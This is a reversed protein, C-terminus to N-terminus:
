SKGEQNVKLSFHFCFFSCVSVSACLSCPSCATGVGVCQCICIRYLLLTRVWEFSQHSSFIMCQTSRNQKSGRAFSVCTALTKPMSDLFAWKWTPCKYYLCRICISTCLYPSLLLVLFVCVKKQQLFLLLNSFCIHFFRESCVFKTLSSCRVCSILCMHQNDMAAIIVVTFLLLYGCCERRVGWGWMTRWTSTQSCHLRPLSMTTGPDHLKLQEIDRIGLEGAVAIAKNWSRFVVPSSHLQLFVGDCCQSDLFM